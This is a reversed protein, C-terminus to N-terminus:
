GGIQVTARAAADREDVAEVEVPEVEVKPKAATV